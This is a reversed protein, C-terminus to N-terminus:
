SDFNNATEKDAKQKTHGTTNRGATGLPLLPAAPTTSARCPSARGTGRSLYTLLANVGLFSDLFVPKFQATKGKYSEVPSLSRTERM